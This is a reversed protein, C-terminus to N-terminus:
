ANTTINQVSHGKCSTRLIPEAVHSESCSILPAASSSAGSTGALNDTTRDIRDGDQNGRRMKEKRNISKRKM